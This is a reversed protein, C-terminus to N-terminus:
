LEVTLAVYVPAVRHAALAISAATSSRPAAHSTPLTTTFCRTAIGAVIGTIGVGVGLHSRASVSVSVLVLQSVQESSFVRRHRTTFVQIFRWRRAMSEGHTTFPFM